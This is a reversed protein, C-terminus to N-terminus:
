LKANMQELIKKARRLRQYFANVSCGAKAAGEKPGLKDFLIFMVAQRSKVPLKSIMEPIIQSVEEMYIIEWLPTTKDVLKNSIATELDNISGVKVQKSTKRLHRLIINKVIGCLYGRTDTEQHYQSKGECIALFTEHVLDDIQADLIGANQIYLKIYKKHKIYLHVIAKQDSEYLAKKLRIREDFEINNKAL